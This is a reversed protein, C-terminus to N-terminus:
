TNAKVVKVSTIMATVFDIDRDYLMPFSVVSFSFVVVSLIIGATNGVVFFLMGMPTTLITELLQMFSLPRLGFFIVYLAAAIDMWIIYSFTTVLVMWGLDRGRAHKLSGLVAGWGLPLGLELRRSIDYLGAAVFPAVMAFGTVMPYVYYTLKLLYFMSILFWGAAAYFIGFFAGYLPAALFDRVGMDLIELIDGFKIPQILPPQRQPTQRQDKDSNGAGKGEASEVMDDM